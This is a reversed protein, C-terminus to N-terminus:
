CDAPVRHFTSRGTKGDFYSGGYLYWDLSELYEVATEATITEAAQPTVVGMFYRGSRSYAEYEVFYHLWLRQCHLCRRLTVQGYRGNASDVGIHKLEEYHFFPLPLDLCICKSHDSPARNPSACLEIKEALSEELVEGRLECIRMIWSYILLAGDELAVYLDKYQEGTLHRALGLKSFLYSDGESTPQGLPKSAFGCRALVEALNEETSIDNTNLM